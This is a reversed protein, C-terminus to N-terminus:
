GQVWQLYTLPLSKDPVYMLHRQKKWRPRRGPSAPRQCHPSSSGSVHCDLPRASSLFILTPRSSSYASYESETFLFAIMVAFYVFTFSLESISALYGPLVPVSIRFFVIRFVTAITSSLRAPLSRAKARPAAQELVKEDGPSVPSSPEEESSSPSSAKLWLFRVIRVLTLFGIVAGVFYWTEKARKLQLANRIVRAGATSADNRARSELIGSM